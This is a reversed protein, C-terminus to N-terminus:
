YRSAATVAMTASAKAVLMREGNAEAYVEAETFM